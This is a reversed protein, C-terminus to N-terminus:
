IEGNGQCTTSTLVPFVIKSPDDKRAKSDMISFQAMLLAILVDMFRIM